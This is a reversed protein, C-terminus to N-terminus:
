VIHALPMISTCFMELCSRLLSQNAIRGLGRKMSQLTEWSALSIKYTSEIM